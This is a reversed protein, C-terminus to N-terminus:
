ENDDSSGNDSGEHASDIEALDMGGDASGASMDDESEDDEEDGDSSDDGDEQGLEEESDLLNDADEDSSSLDGEENQDDEDGEEDDIMSGGDDDNVKDDEDLRMNSEMHSMFEEEDGDMMGELDDDDLAEISDIGSNKKGKQARRRSERLADVRSANTPRKSFGGECPVIKLSTGNSLSIGSSGRLSANKKKKLKNSSSDEATVVIEKFSNPFISPDATITGHSITAETRRNETQRPRVASIASLRGWCAALRDRTAVMNMYTSLLPAVFVSPLSMTSAEHQEEKLDEEKRKKRILLEKTEYHRMEMGRLFLIM